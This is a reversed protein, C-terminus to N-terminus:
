IFLDQICIYIYTDTHVYMCTYIYVYAYTYVCIKIFVCMYRSDYVSVHTKCTHLYICM